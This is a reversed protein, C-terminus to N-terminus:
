ESSSSSLATQGITAENIWIITSKPNPAISTIVPKVEFTCINLTFLWLLGHPCKISSLTIASLLQCYGYWGEGGQTLGQVCYWITLLDDVYVHMLMLVYWYSTHCLSLSWTTVYSRLPAPLLARYFGVAVSKSSYRICATSSIKTLVSRM